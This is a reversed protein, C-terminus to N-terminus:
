IKVYNELATKLKRIANAHIQSVRPEKVGLVSAIERMTLNKKYYLSITMQENERLSLIADNIKEHLEKKSLVQEPMNNIDTDKPQTYGTGEEMYSNILTDLSLINHLNTQSLLKLYKETEMGLKEAIEDDTPHRGLKNFLESDAAEIEKAIKRYSRPLWDQKRALDIITGRIRL